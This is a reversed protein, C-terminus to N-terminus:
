REYRWRGIRGSLWDMSLTSATRPIEERRDVPVLHSEEAASSSRPIDRDREM